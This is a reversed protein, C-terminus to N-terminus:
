KVTTYDTLRYETYYEIDNSSLNYESTSIFTLVKKMQVTDSLKFPTLSYKLVIPTGSMDSDIKLSVKVLSVSGDTLYGEVPLTTAEPESACSFTMGTTAFTGNIHMDFFSAINFTNSKGLELDTFSRLVYFMMDNDYVNLMSKKKFDITSTEGKMTLTSTSTKYDNVLHYSYNTQGERDALVATKESRQALLSTTHFVVSSSVTDRKGRDAEPASDNYEMFMDMTLKSYYMTEGNVDESHDFDLTYTMEGSAILTGSATKKEIGYTVKEYATEPRDEPSWPLNPNVMVEETTTSCAVACLALVLTFILCFLKKM